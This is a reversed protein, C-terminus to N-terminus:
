SRQHGCAFIDHIYIIHVEGITGSRTGNELVQDWGNSGIVTFSFDHKDALIQLIDVDLGVFEGKEKYIYPVVGYGAVKINQGKLKIKPDAVPKIQSSKIVIFMALPALERFQQEIEEELINSSVIFTCTNTIRPLRSKLQAFNKDTEIFNTMLTDKQFYM